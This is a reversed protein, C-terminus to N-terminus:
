GRLQEVVVLAAFGVLAAGFVRPLWRQARALRRSVPGSQLALVVLTWCVAGHVVVVVPLAIRWGSSAGPPIVQAFVGLFFFFAKPNTLNCVLGEFFGSRNSRGEGAGGSEVAQAPASALARFGLWALFVAGALSVVRVVVDSMVGMGFAIACTHVCLGAVIGAATALGRARTAGMSNRMVVFFDPGPSALGLTLVGLLLGLQGVTNM